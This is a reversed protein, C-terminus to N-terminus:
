AVWREVEPDASEMKGRWDSICGRGAERQRWDDVKVRTDRPRAYSQNFVPLALPANFGLATPIPCEGESCCGTLHRVLYYALMKPHPRIAFSVSNSSVLDTPSDPTLM